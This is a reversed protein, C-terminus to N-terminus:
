DRHVCGQAIKAQRAILGVWALFLSFFSRVENMFVWSWFPLHRRYHVYLIPLSTVTRMVTFLKRPHAPISTGYTRSLKTVEPSQKDTQRYRRMNEFKGLRNTYFAVQSTSM